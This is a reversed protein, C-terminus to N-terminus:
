NRDSQERQQIEEAQRHIESKWIEAAERLTINRRRAIERVSKEIADALPSPKYM